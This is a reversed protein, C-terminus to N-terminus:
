SNAQWSRIITSRIRNQQRRIQDRQTGEREGSVEGVRSGDAGVDGSGDAVVGSSGEESNGASVQGGGPDSSDTM